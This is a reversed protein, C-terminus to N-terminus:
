TTGDFIQEVKKLNKLINSLDRSINSPEHSYYNKAQVSRNDMGIASAGVQPLIEDILNRTESGISHSSRERELLDRMRTRLKSSLQNIASIVLSDLPSISFIRANIGSNIPPTLTTPTASFAEVRCGSNLDTNAVNPSSPIVHRSLLSETASHTMLNPDFHKKNDGNPAASSCRTVSSFDRDFQAMQHPKTSFFRKGMQFSTISRVCENPVTNDPINSDYQESMGYLHSVRSGSYNKVANSSFSSSKQVSVSYAPSNQSPM